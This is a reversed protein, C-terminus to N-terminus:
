PKVETLFISAFGDNDNSEPWVREKDCYGTEIGGDLRLIQVRYQHMDEQLIKLPRLHLRSKAGMRAVYIHTGAFEEESM